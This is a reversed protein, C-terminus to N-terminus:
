YPGFHNKHVQDVGHKDFTQVIKPHTKWQKEIHQINKRILQSSLMAQQPTCASRISLCTTGKACRLYKWWPKKLQSWFDPVWCTPAASFRSKVHGTYRPRIHRQCGKVMIPLQQRTIALRHWHSSIGCSGAWIRAGVRDLGNCSSETECHCSAQHIPRESHESYIRM